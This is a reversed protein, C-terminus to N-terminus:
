CVEQNELKKRPCLTNKGLPLTKLGRMKERYVDSM